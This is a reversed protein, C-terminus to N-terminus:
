GVRPRCVTPMAIGFRGPSTPWITHMWAASTSKAVPASRREFATVPTTWHCSELPRSGLRGIAKTRLEGDTLVRDGFCPATACRRDDGNLQACNRRTPELTAHWAQQKLSLRGTGGSPRRARTTVSSGLRLVSHRRDTTPSRAADTSATRASSIARCLAGSTSSSSLPEAKRALRKAEKQRWSPMASSCEGTCRHALRVPVAGALDTATPGPKASLCGPPAAARVSRQRLFVEVGGDGEGIDHRPDVVSAMAAASCPSARKLPLCSRTGRESPRTATRRARSIQWM